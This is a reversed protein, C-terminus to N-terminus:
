ENERERGEGENGGGGGEAKREEGLVVRKKEVGRNRSGKQLSLIAGM